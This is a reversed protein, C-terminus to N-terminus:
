KHKNNESPAALISTQLCKNSDGNQSLHLGLSHINSIFGLDASITCKSRVNKYNESNKIFVALNQQPLNWKKNITPSISPYFYKLIGSETLITSLIVGQHLSIYFYKYM